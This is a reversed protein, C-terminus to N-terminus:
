DISTSPNISKGQRYDDVSQYQSSQPNIAEKEQNTSMKNRIQRGKIIKFKLYDEIFYILCSKRKIIAM